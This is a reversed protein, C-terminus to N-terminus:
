HRTAAWGPLWYPDDHKFEMLAEHNSVFRRKRPLSAGRRRVRFYSSRYLADFNVAGRALNVLKAHGLKEIARGRFHDTMSCFGHVPDGFGYTNLDSRDIRPM